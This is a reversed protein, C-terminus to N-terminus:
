KQKKKYYNKIEEKKKYYNKIEEQLIYTAKDTITQHDGDRRIVYSGKHLWRLFQARHPLSELWIAEDDYEIGNICWTDNEPKYYMTTSNLNYEQVKKQAERARKMGALLFGLSCCFMIILSCILKTKTKFLKRVWKRKIPDYELENM